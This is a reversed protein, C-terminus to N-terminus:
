KAVDPLSEEDHAEQGVHARDECDIAAESLREITHEAKELRIDLAEVQFTLHIMMDHLKDYSLGRKKPTTAAQQTLPLSLEILDFSNV